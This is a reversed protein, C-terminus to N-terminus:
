RSGHRLSPRLLIFVGPKEGAQFSVARYKTVETSRVQLSM